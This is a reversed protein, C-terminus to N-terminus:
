NQSLELFLNIMVYYTITSNTSLKDAPNTNVIKLGKEGPTEQLSKQVPKTM